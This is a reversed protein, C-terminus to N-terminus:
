CPYRISRIEYKNYKVFKILLPHSPNTAAIIIPITDLSSSIVFYLRRIFETCLHELQINQIALHTDQMTRLIDCTHLSHRVVPGMKWERDVELYFFITCTCPVQVM